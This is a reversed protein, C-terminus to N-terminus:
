EREMPPATTGFVRHWEYRNLIAIDEDNLVKKQKIKTIELPETVSYKIPYFM